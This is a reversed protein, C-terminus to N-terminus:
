FYQVTDDNGIKYPANKLINIALRTSIAKVNYIPVPGHWVVEEVNASNPMEKTQFIVASIEKNFEPIEYGRKLLEEKESKKRLNSPSLLKKKRMTIIHNFQVLPFWIGFSCSVAFNSSESGLKQSKVIEPINEALSFHIFKDQNLPFKYNNKYHKKLEQPNKLNLYKLLYKSPPTVSVLELNELWLKFNM